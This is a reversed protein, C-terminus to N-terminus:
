VAIRRGSGGGERGSQLRRGVKRGASFRDEAQSPSSRGEIGASSRGEVKTLARCVGSEDSAM